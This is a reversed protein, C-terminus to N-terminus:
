QNTTEVGRFFIFTLPHRIVDWISFYDLHELGGVLYLITYGLIDMTETLNGNNYRITRHNNEVKAVVVQELDAANDPAGLRL